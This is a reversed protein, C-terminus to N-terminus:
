PRAARTRAPTTTPASTSPGATTRTWTTSDRVAVPTDNVETVTISVTAENGLDGLADKARYWDPGNMNAGPTYTYTGDAALM